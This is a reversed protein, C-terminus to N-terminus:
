IKKLLSDKDTYYLKIYEAIKKNERINRKVLYDIVQKKEEISDKFSINSGVRYKLTEKIYDEISTKFQTYFIDYKKDKFYPYLKKVLFNM